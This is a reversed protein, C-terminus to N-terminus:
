FRPISSIYNIKETFSTYSNKRKTRSEDGDRTWRAPFQDRVLGQSRLLYASSLSLRTCDRERSWRPRSPKAHDAILRSKGYYWICHRSRATGRPVVKARRFEATIEGRVPNVGRPKITAPIMACVRERPRVFSARSSARGDLPQRVYTKILPCIRNFNDPSAHRRRWGGRGAARGDRSM